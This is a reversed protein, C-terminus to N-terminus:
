NSVTECAVLEVAGGGLAMAVRTPPAPSGGVELVLDAAHTDFGLAVLLWLM